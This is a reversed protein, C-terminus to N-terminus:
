SSKQFIPGPSFIPRPSYPKSHSPLSEMVALVAPAAIALRM